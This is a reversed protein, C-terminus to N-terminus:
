RRRDAHQPLRAQEPNVANQSRGTLAINVKRIQTETARTRRAAGPAQSTTRGDHAREAPNTNGDVLDFTFQLNEIDIAVANGSRNNFTLRTRRQQHPAGSAPAGPRDDRGPLLHDDPHPQYRPSGLATAPDAANLAALTGAAAGSQNLNLSDGDAFTLRRSASDVSTVQLLTTVSGKSVMMLQGPTVRDPGAGINPGAAPLEM